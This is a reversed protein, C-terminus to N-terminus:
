QPLNLVRPFRSAVAPSHTICIITQREFRSLLDDLIERELSRDLASTFEDLVLIEPERVLARALAMRQLEGGSMAMGDRGLVTDHRQPM